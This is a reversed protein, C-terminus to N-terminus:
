LSPTEPSCTVPFKPLEAQLLETLRECEAIFRGSFKAHRLEQPSLKAVNRNIRDFINNILEENESPVYEVMFQYAWVKKKTEADFESFKLGRLSSITCDESVPFDDDV